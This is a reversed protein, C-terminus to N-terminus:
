ILRDTKDLIDSTDRLIQSLDELKHAAAELMGNPLAQPKTAEPAPPATPPGGALRSVITYLRIKNTAADEKLREITSLINQFETDPRDTKAETNRESM